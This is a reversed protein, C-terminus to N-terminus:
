FLELYGKFLLQCRRRDKAKIFNLFLKLDQILFSAITKLKNQSHRLSVIKKNRQFLYTTYYSEKHCTKGVAHKIQTDLHLGLPFNNKLCQASFDVDEWYTGLTQDIQINLQQYNKHIWFASGPIYPKKLKIQDNMLNEFEEKNRCHRLQCSQPDFVGGTSDIQGIKRRYILPAFIGVNKPPSPPTLLECDNTLFLVWDAHKTGCELATHCGGSFGINKPLTIHHITPYKEILYNQHKELSGNHILTLQSSAIFQLCSDVTRATLEPHNYSLLTIHWQDRM